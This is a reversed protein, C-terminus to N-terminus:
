VRDAPCTWYPNFPEFIMGYFEMACFSMELEDRLKALNRLSLDGLDSMLIKRSIRSSNHRSQSFWMLNIQFQTILNHERPLCVRFNVNSGMAYEHQALRFANYEVSKDVVIKWAKCCLRLDHILSLRRQSDLITDQGMDVNAARVLLNPVLVLLQMDLDLYLILPEMVHSERSRGYSSAGVEILYM